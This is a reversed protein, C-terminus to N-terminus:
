PYTFINFIRYWSENYFLYFVNEPLITYFQSSEVLWDLCKLLLERNGLKSRSDIVLAINNVFDRTPRTGLTVNTLCFSRKTCPSFFMDSISFLTSFAGIYRFMGPGKIMGDVKVISLYNVLAVAANSLRQFGPV